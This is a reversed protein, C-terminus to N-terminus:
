CSRPPDLSSPPKMGAPPKDVGPRLATIAEILPLIITEGPVVALPGCPSGLVAPGHCRKSIPAALVSITQEQVSVAEQSTQSVALAFRNETLTRAAFASTHAGWPLLAMILTFLALSRFGAM